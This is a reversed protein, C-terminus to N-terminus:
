MEDGKSEESVMGVRAKLQDLSEQYDDLAEMIKLKAKEALKQPAHYTAVDQAVKMSLPERAEDGILLWEMSVSFFQAIRLLDGSKPEQGALLRSVTAQTMGCAEALEQQSVKKPSEMLGKLRQAFTM